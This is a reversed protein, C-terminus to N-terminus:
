PKKRQFPEVSIPKIIHMYDRGNMKGAPDLRNYMEFKQRRDKEDFCGWHIIRLNLKKAADPRPPASGGHLRKEPVTEGHRWKWARLRDLPNTTGPHNVRARDERDWLHALGFVVGSPSTGLIYERVARPDEFEEDDDLSVCFEPEYRDAMRLMLNRNFADGNM